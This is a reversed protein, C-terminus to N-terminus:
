SSANEAFSSQTRALSASAIDELTIGSRECMGHFIGDTKKYLNSPTDFEAIQGADLVCIRDYAIITRLRHAICLITRDHFETAITHQIYHDTEYDVSATAEDLVLVRSDKVLARALSVLSRQGVSLNGGEDEIITDLSFKNNVVPTRAGSGGEQGGNNQERATDVLYSRKLADWLRADDHQGFPDLNTRLTGNFLLPDQPIIAINSRVDTLGIKALDVGDIEISGASLEVLRYLAVMISSKGAGTRGVIGIKEGGRVSMSLNKLVPPLDPRYRLDINKLEVQGHTPWQPPPKSDPIEHPPEQEVQNAYYLIREVGNMDNEVEASQRVMWGFAQQVLLIYSLTVGTQSPSISKRAAVTLIAVFFTLLTGLMDLRIGLWRQNTVTLWYARNEVDVRTENDLRFREAEGYARITALGSLSESFHSYLSSRLLSDLRKLERASTRYFMAFWYYVLSIIFVPVLFYPLVISILIVAGIIQAFTSMFMRLADGLLNDITDIDKSFRNMIRGLPTTDFFSMPAYMVRHIANHHLTRSAFYTLFAFVAGMAFFGIAQGVGLCAYIIMYFSAPRPWKREQWYVLWYSSMVSTVQMFVLSAVLIPILIHGHGAKLYQGYVAGSVAGTNREEDQMIGAGVMKKKKKEDAEVNIEEEEKKEEEEEQSGFETVFKSFAGDNAMLEAYTGREAVKGDDLVYIYDMQPLFHLAHTVVLRTKPKSDKEEISPTLMVNHFVSKGVHADLASFPDDFIQIDANFYIARCINVRQKQGGSLSIGKEGVETLDGHPLLELDHELCSDRIAAWYRKEDFPRGFTVNERITANQIWASQPCYAITGGLKVSGSTCRMEGILAQLLSSKGSGVSGVVACLQGRPISLNVDEMKFTREEEKRVEAIPTGKGKKPKGKGAAAGFTKKVKKDPIDPPAGDWMFSANKVEVAVPLELDLTGGEDELAHEFTEAVFADHLRTTANYADAIASYSIPLFMLPLRLLQFLTLSTFISAAELTHGTLSYVVFSIVAALVPLSFAVANNGSRILLLSRVYGIEKKRFEAIRKLFPKEWAFYKIVRMGGLLEQLLKARKDTWQMSKMRIGFLRKMVYTQIPTGLIFFGFGALASPGLNLLLLILCIVMQVPATWAMHFFSCCFDIRSVDTSIHNILKGNTLTSRARSTLRLSRDYIATILGGRLLVGSSAARYFFHHTCFSAGLQLFFLAFALGVGHGIPPAKQPPNSNLANYSQQAFKIIAKVLLPSTVQATDATVKLIGGTWFWWKISDNLAYVLSPKRKGEKERWHKEREKRNGRIAWWLHRWGAGIEGSSLRANYEEAEKLRREFSTVIRDAIVKSARDDQLKYLDQQYLPRAYGLALIHTIWNFTLHSLFTASAEPTMPATEVTGSPPPADLSAGPVRLYWPYKDYALLPQELSQEIESEHTVKNEIDSSTKGEVTKISSRSSLAPKQDSM